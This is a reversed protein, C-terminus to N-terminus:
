AKKMLATKGLIILSKLFDIAILITVVVIIINTITLLDLYFFELFPNELPRNIVIGLIVLQCASRVLNVWESTTFFKISYAILGFGLIALLGLSYWKSGAPTLLSQPHQFNLTKFFLTGFRLYIWVLAAYGLSM